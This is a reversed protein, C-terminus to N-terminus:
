IAIASGIGFCVNWEIRISWCNCMRCMKRPAFKAAGGRRHARFIPKAKSTQTKHMKFVLFFNDLVCSHPSCLHTHTHSFHVLPAFNCVCVCVNPFTISIFRTLYVFVVYDQENRPHGIYHYYEGHVSSGAKFRMLREIENGWQRMGDYWNKSM